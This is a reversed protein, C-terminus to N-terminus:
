RTSRKAYRKLDAPSATLISEIRQQLESWCEKWGKRFDDSNLLREAEAASTMETRKGGEIISSTVQPERSRQFAIAVAERELKTM